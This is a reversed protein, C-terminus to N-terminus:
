LDEMVIFGIYELYGGHDLKGYVGVVSHNPPIARQQYEGDNKNLHYVIQTSEAEEFEVQMKYTFLNGGWVSISTIKNREPLRVSNLESASCNNADFLPSEVGNEYVLQIATM